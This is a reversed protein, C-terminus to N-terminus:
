SIRIERVNRIERLKELVRSIRESTTTEVKVEFVAADQVSRGALEVMNLHAKHFATTVRNGLGYEDEAIIELLVSFTANPKDAKWKLDFLKEQALGEMRACGPRHIVLRNEQFVGICNDKLAPICVPCHGVSFDLFPVRVFLAKPRSSFISTIRNFFNAEMMRINDIREKNVVRMDLLLKEANNRNELIGLLVASQEAESYRNRFRRWFDDVDVQYRFLMRELYSQAYQAAATRARRNLYNMILRRSRLNSCKELSSNDAVPEAATNIVIMDGDTLKTEIPVPKGDVVANVARLGVESHVKFAFDLATSNREMDFPKGDKSIVTIEEPNHYAFVNEIDRFDTEEKLYTELHRMYEMNKAADESFGYTLIGKRNFVHYEQTTISVPIKTNGYLIEFDLSRYNNNRPTSIYDYISSRVHSFQENIVGMMTYASYRDNVIVRLRFADGPMMHDYGHYDVFPKWYEDLSVLPLSIKRGMEWIKGTIKDLSPRLDRKLEKVREAYQVTKEPDLVQHCLLELTDAIDMLSLRVCIKFYIDLTEKAIRQQKNPPLSDITKMNHLRDFIKIYLIRPHLLSLNFFKDFSEIKKNKIKTMGDVVNMVESGFAERIQQRSINSDEVVDHLLSGFISVPDVMHNVSLDLAVNMPHFIYPEGSKRFQGDHARKMFSVARELEDRFQIIDNNSFTTRSHIIVNELIETVIDDIRADIEARTYFHPQNNDAMSEM